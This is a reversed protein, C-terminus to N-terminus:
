WRRWGYGFFPRRFGYGYGYFPRRFGYGYGFFPRRFGYGYFGPRFGYGYGFGRHYFWVNNLGTTATAVTNLNQVPMAQGEGAVAVLGAFALAGAAASQVIRKM